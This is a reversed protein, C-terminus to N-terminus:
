LFVGGPIYPLDYQELLETRYGRIEKKERDGGHNILMLYDYLDGSSQIKFLRSSQGSIHVDMYCAGDEDVVFLGHVWDSIVNDYDNLGESLLALVTPEAEWLNCECVEYGSCSEKTPAHGYTTYYDKIGDLVDCFTDRTIM